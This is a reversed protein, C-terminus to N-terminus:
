LPIGNTTVSEGLYSLHRAGDSSTVTGKAAPLTVQVASVVGLDALRAPTAKRLRVLQEILWARYASRPWTPRTRVVEPSARYDSPLQDGNQIRLAQLLAMAGALDEPTATLDVLIVNQPTRQARRVVETRKGRSINSTAVLMVRTPALPAQQAHSMPALSALMAGAIAFRLATSTLTVASALSIPTM